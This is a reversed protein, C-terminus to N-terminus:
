TSCIEKRQGSPKTKFSKLRLSLLDGRGVGRALHNLVQLLIMSVRLGLNNLINKRLIQSFKVTSSNISDQFVNLEDTEVDFNVAM